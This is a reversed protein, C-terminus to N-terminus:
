LKTILQQVQEMLATKSGNNDIVLDCMAPTITCSSRPERPKRLSADVWIAVDFLGATRMAALEEKCRLGCYIQSQSYVVRGLRAKDKHNFAKILEFWLPRHNVRDVFCQEMSSYGLIPSLAKFIFAANAIHSSSAFTVGHRDRLLECVTDKGHRAHGCIMLRM